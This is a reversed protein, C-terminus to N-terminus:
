LCSNLRFLVSIFRRSKDSFDPERATSCGNQHNVARKRLVTGERRHDIHCLERYEAIKACDWSDISSTSSPM